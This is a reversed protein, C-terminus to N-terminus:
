KCLHPYDKTDRDKMNGRGFLKYFVVNTGNTKAQYSTKPNWLM